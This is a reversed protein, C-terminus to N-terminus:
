PKLIKPLHKHRQALESYIFWLQEFCIVFNRSQTFHHYLSHFQKVSYRQRSKVITNPGVAAGYPIGSFLMILDLTM